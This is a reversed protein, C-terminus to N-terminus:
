QVEQRDKQVDTIAQRHDHAASGDGRTLGVQQQLGASQHADHSRREGAIQRLQAVGPTYVM